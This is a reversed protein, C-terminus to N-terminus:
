QRLASGLLAKLDAESRAGVHTIIEGAALSGMHGCTALNKGTTLGHLFGAAYLDGAGTTDIVDGHPIADIIHVEDGSLIVSGKEGRTLVAIECHGRVHQLAVDFEDTEYLSLIENENAFLIDIEHEALAVFEKRFRDVCFQDSLTFAVKRGAAHAIEMAKRYAMKAPELDWLYGEFYTIAASRIFDPEIDDPSLNNCAGLYTNMTRQADPTVLILCRGTPVGDNAAPTDFAVGLSRLDHTFVAGLQDDAVRGIFGCQNGLEAMGAVTNAASGGSCEIAPGMAGYIIEARSADILVMAGKEMEHSDLLSQDAHALVDVIANGIAVVDYKHQGELTDPM